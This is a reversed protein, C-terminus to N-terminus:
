CSFAPIHKTTSPTEMTQHISEPNSQQQDRLQLFHTIWEEFGDYLGPGSPFATRNFDGEAHKCHLFQSLVHTLPSRLVIALIEHDSALQRDALCRERNEVFPTPSVVDKADVMLSNGACKPIHIFLFHHKNPLVSEEVTQALDESEDGQGMSQELTSFKREQLLVTHEYTACAVVVFTTFVMIMGPVWHNQAFRLTVTVHKLWRTYASKFSPYCLWPDFTRDKCDQLPQPVWCLWPLHSDRKPDKCKSTVEAELASSFM